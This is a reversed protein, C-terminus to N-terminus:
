RRNDHAPTIPTVSLSMCWGYREGPPSRVALRWGKFEAGPPAREGPITSRTESSTTSTTLVAKRPWHVGSRGAPATATQASARAGRPDHCLRGGCRSQHRSHQGRGHADMRLIGIFLRAFSNIGGSRVAQQECIRAPRARMRTELARTHDTDCSPSQATRLTLSPPAECPLGGVKLGTRIPPVRKQKTSRPPDSVTATWDRDNKLIPFPFSMAHM